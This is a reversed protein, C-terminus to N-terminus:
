LTAEEELAQLHMMKAFSQIFIASPPHYLLCDYIKKIYCINSNVSLSGLSYVQNITFSHLAKQFCFKNMSVLQIYQEHSEAERILLLISFDHATLHCIISSHFSERSAVLWPSCTSIAYTATPHKHTLAAPHSSPFGAHAKIENYSLGSQM